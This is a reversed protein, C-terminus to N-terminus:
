GGCKVIAELILYFAIQDSPFWFEEVVEFGEGDSEVLFTHSSLVRVPV